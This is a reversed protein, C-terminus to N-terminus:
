TYNKEKAQAPFQKAGAASVEYQASMVRNGFKKEWTEYPNLVARVLRALVAATLRSRKYGVGAEDLKKEHYDWFKNDRRGQLLNVALFNYYKSVLKKRCAAFEGPTLFSRGYIVLNHLHGAILTNLDETIAGLSEARLRKYTLVQHVFGFDCNELLKVCVEMDSHLNAENLFPDNGRVLDSRFLLSTGTGFVYIEDLFLMRCVERGSVCTSPYPLGTWMVERGQMGYAGLIGVSPYREAVDVMQELCNPFIWDDAFVVKCYKSEQSIQRFANNHNPVARLFEKNQHIRIRADKASYRRAIEATSDTSCNDVITYEWNQYSQTLVSEICEALFEAGNYVPTIVSVLSQNSRSM